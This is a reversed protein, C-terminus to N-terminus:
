AGRRAEQLRSGRRECTAFCRREGDGAPLGRALAHCTGVLACGAGRVHAALSRPHARDRDFPSDM